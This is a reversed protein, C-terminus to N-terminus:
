YVGKVLYLTPFVDIPIHTNIPIKLLFNFVKSLAENLLCMFDKWQLPYQLMALFQKFHQKM